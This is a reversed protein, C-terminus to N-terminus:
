VRVEDLYARYALLGAAGLIPDDVAAAYDGTWYSPVFGTDFDGSRFAEHEMVFRGFPLTTAVGEIHYGDIAEIMRQIAAARTDGYVILKSLMPDYYIPVDM